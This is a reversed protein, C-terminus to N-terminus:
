SIQNNSINIIEQAIIKEGAQSTLENRVESLLQADLTISPIIPAQNLRDLLHFPEQKNM